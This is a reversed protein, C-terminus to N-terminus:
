QLPSCGVPRLITTDFTTALEAMQAIGDRWEAAGRSAQRSMEMAQLGCFSTDRGVIEGGHKWVEYVTNLTGVDSVLVTVLETTPHTGDANLKSPLATSYIRLFKPVTDYGLKLQYKRLEVISSSGGNAPHDDINVSDSGSPSAGGSSYKDGWYKLGTIEEFDEVLPAEVFIESSRRMVHSNVGEGQLMARDRALASRRDLREAHGGPYHYLQVATDISIAGTEPFGVFALPLDKYWRASSLVLWPPTGLGAWSLHRLGWAHISNPSPHLQYQRLEVIPSSLTITTEAATAASHMEAKSPPRMSVHGGSKRRLNSAVKAIIM